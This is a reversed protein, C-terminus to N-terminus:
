AYVPQKNSILFQLKSFLYYKYTYNYVLNNDCDNNFINEFTKKKM